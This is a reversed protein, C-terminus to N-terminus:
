ALSTPLACIKKKESFTIMCVAEQTDISAHSRKSESLKGNEPLFNASAAAAAAVVVIFNRSYYFTAHAIRAWKVECKMSM